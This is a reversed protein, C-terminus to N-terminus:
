AFDISWGFALGPVRDVECPGATGPPRRYSNFSESPFHRDGALGCWGSRGLLPPGEPSTQPFFLCESVFGFRPTPSLHSSYYEGGSAGGMLDCCPSALGEPEGSLACVSVWPWVLGPILIPWEASPTGPLM